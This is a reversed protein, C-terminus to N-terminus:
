FDLMVIEVGLAFHNCLIPQRAPRHDDANRRACRTRVVQDFFREDTKKLQASDGSRLEFRGRLAANRPLARAERASQPVRATITKPLLERDRPRSRRCALRTREGSFISM